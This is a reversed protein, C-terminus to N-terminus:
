DYENHIENDHLVMKTTLVLIMNVRRHAQNAVKSM